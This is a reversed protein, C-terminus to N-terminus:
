ALVTYISSSHRQCRTYTLDNSDIGFGHHIHPHHRQALFDFHKWTAVDVRYIVFM